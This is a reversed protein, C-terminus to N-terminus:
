ADEGEVEPLVAFNFSPPPSPTSWELSRGNWPDGAGARLSDRHRISYVLQWIQLAIGISILVAGGAAAVLWPHWAPVDYHQMRRTMGMLGLVYLPM